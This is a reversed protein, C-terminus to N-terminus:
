QKEDNNLSISLHRSHGNELGRGCSFNDYHCCCPGGPVLLYDCWGGVVEDEPILVIM